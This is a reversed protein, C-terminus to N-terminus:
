NVKPLLGSLQSFIPRFSGGFQASVVWPRISGPRFSGPGFRSLASVVRPRFSGNGTSYIFIHSYQLDHYNRSRLGIDHVYLFEFQIEESVATDVQVLSQIFAKLYLSMFIQHCSAPCMALITAVGMYPLVGDFNKEPVSLGIELFSPIYCQPSRCIM